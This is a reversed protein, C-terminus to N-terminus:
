YRNRDSAPSTANAVLNKEFHYTKKRAIRYLEISFGRTETVVCMELSSYFKRRVWEDKESGNGVM